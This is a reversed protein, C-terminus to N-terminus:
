EFLRKSNGSLIKREASTMNILVILKRPTSYANRRQSDRYNETTATQSNLYNKVSIISGSM